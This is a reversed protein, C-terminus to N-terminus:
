LANLSTLHAMTVRGSKSDRWLNRQLLAIMRCEIYGALRQRRISIDDSIMMSELNSPQSFRLYFRMSLQSLSSGAEARSSVKGALAEIKMRV